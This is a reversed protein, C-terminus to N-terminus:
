LLATVIYAYKIYTTVVNVGVKNKSKDKEPLKKNEKDNLSTSSAGSAGDPKGRSKEVAKVWSEDNVENKKKKKKPSVPTELFM